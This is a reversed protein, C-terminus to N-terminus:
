VLYKHLRHLNETICRTDFVIVLTLYIIKLTTHFIINIQMNVNAFTKNSKGHFITFNLLITM